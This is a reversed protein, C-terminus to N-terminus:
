IEGELAPAMEDLLGPLEPLDASPEASARTPGRHKRLAFETADNADEYFSRRFAKEIRDFLGARRAMTRYRREVDLLERLLEYQLDSGDCMTKLLALDRPSLVSHEDLSADPFTEGTCESYIQPL